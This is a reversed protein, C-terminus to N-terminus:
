DYPRHAYDGGTRRALSFSALRDLPNATVVFDFRTESEIAQADHHLDLQGFARWGRAVQRFDLIQAMQAHEIEATRRDAIALENL